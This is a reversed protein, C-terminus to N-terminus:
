TLLLDETTVYKLQPLDVCVQSVRLNNMETEGDQHYNELVM